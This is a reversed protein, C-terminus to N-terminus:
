TKGGKLIKNEICQVNYMLEAAFEVVLIVPFPDFPIFSINLPFKKSKVQCNEGQTTSNTKYSRPRM